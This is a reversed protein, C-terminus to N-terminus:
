LSHMVPLSYLVKKWIFISALDSFHALAHKPGRYTVPGVLVGNGILIQKVLTEASHSTDIRIQAQSPVSFFLAMLTLCLGNKLHANIM